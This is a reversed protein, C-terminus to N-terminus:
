PATPTGIGAADMQTLADKAESSGADAGRKYWERAKKLDHMYADQVYMSAVEMIAEVNGQAAAREMMKLGSNPQLKYGDRGFAMREGVWLLAPAFNQEAALEMDEFGAQQQMFDDSAVRGVARHHLAWPNGALALVDIAATDNAALAQDFEPKQANIADLQQKIKAAEAAAAAAVKPDIAAAPIAVADETGAMESAGGCATLALALLSLLAPRMLRAM